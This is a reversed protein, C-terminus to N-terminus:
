AGNGDFMDDTNPDRPLSPLDPELGDISPQNPPKLGDGAPLQLDGPSLSPLQRLNPRDVAITSADQEDTSVLIRADFAAYRQNSRKDAWAVRRNVVYANVGGRESGVRVIDVWNEAGLVTLSRKVTNVSVGMLAALTAQSTVVAGDRGMNAVLLHLLQAAKPKRGILGAWAEHAARETQVWTGRAVIEIDAM